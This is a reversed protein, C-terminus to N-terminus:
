AAAGSLALNAALIQVVEQGTHQVHEAMLRGATKAQRAEMAELIARHEGISEKWRRLSSLAFFRARETRPFLL